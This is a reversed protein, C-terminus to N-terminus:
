QDVGDGKLLAQVVNRQSRKRDRDLQRGGRCSDYESQLASADRLVRDAGTEKLLVADAVPIAGGVFICLDNNRSLLRLTRVLSVGSELAATCGLSVLALDFRNGAMLQTLEMPMPAVRVMASFGALRLELALVLAGLTHQEAESVLILASPGTAPRVEALLEDVKRVLGHLKETGITVDIFSIEDAAWGEGLHRAAAPAYLCAVTAPDLQRTMMEALMVAPDIARPERLVRLFHDLHDQRVVAGEQDRVLVLRGLAEKALGAFWDLGTLGQAEPIGNDRM